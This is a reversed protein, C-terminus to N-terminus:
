GNRTLSFLKLVLWALVPIGVIFLGLGLWSMESPSALLGTESNSAPTAPQENSLVPTPGILYTNNLLAERTALEKASPTPFNDASAVTALTGPEVLQSDTLNTESNPIPTAPQVTSFPPAPGALYTNSLLAERTALEDASPTSFEDAFILAESVAPAVTGQGATLDTSYIENKPSPSPGAAQVIYYNIQWFVILAMVLSTMLFSKSLLSRLFKIPM